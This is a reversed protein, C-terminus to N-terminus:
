ANQGDVRPTKMMFFFVSPIQLAALHYLRLNVRTPHLGSFRTKDM